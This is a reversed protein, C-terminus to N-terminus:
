RRRKGPLFLEALENFSKAVRSRPALAVAPVGENVSQPILRDSPISGAVRLGLSRELEVLDLRAKSNVRNVVLHVREMPFSATRLADLAIKANKVSPLDMDVVVLVDDAHELVTILSEDFIPATDVVVYDFMGALREVVQVVHKAPLERSSTPHLPAPLVRLGSEHRQLLADLRPESLGDLDRAADVITRVPDLQLMLAVDGFQLDADVVVTRDQGGAFTLSVALNTATITKGSGGKGAMVAIVRGAGTRTVPYPGDSDAISHSRAPTPPATGPMPPPAGPRPPVGSPSDPVRDHDPFWEAPEAAAPPAFSEDGPQIAPEPRAAVEPQPGPQPATPQQRAAPEVTRPTAPQEGPWVVVPLAEEPAPEPEPAAAAAVPQAAPEGSPDPAAPQPAPEIQVEPAAPERTPQSADRPAEVPEARFEASSSPASETRPVAEAETEAEAVAPAAEFFLDFPSPQPEPRGAAREEPTRTRARGLAETLKRLTLPTDVVDALGNRLAARLIRNTAINAALVITVDRDAALIEVAEAVGSETGHSPGMVVLDVRGGIAIEAAEDVSRATLVREDALLLRADELFDPDRDVVLVLRGRRSRGM